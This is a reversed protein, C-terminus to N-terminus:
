PKETFCWKEQQVRQHLIIDWDRKSSVRQMYFEESDLSPPLSLSGMPKSTGKTSRGSLSDTSSANTVAPVEHRSGGVTLGECYQEMDRKGQFGWHTSQPHDRSIGKWYPHWKRGRPFIQRETNFSANCRNWSCSMKEGHSEMVTYSEIKSRQYGRLLDTGESQRM